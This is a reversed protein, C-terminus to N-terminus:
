LKVAAMQLVIEDAGLRLFDAESALPFGGALEYWALQGLWPVYEVEGQKRRPLCYFLGDALILNYSTELKHLDAICAAAEAQTDFRLCRVPYPEDGGNHTWRVDEIPLPSERLFTQFHQHNVSAHAGYSNYGLGFGPMRANLARALEWLYAVDDPELFQPRHAGIDPVLLGHYDAFPFKNYLLTAQRDLLAGEWIIEQRLFPKDFHFRDADFPARIGAIRAGSHRAPRYARLPNWQLEWPGANRLTVPRLTDFGHNLIERLTAVDDPAGHLPRQAQEAAAQERALRAFCDRLEGHLHDWIRPEFNANALVLIDEGLEGTTRLLQILGLEFRDRFTDASQFLDPLM